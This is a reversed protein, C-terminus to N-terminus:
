EDPKKPKRGWTTPDLLRKLPDGTSKGDPTDKADGGGIKPLRWTKPDFVAKVTDDVARTTLATIDKGAKLFDGPLEAVRNLMRTPGAAITQQFAKEFRVEPESVTGSVPFDVYLLGDTAVLFVNLVEVPVGFVQLLRGSRATHRFQLGRVQVMQDTAIVDDRITCKATILVNGKRVRLDGADGSTLPMESLNVQEFRVDIDANLPQKLAALMTKVALSGQEEGSKLDATITLPQTPAGVPEETSLDDGTVTLNDVVMEYVPEGQSRDVYTIRGGRLRLRKVTVATPEGPEAATPKEEKPPANKQINEALRQLNMKGDAGREILLVPNDVEIHDVVVAGGLLSGVSVDVDIADVSVALVEEAPPNAPDEPPNVVRLGGVRVHGTFLNVKLAEIRVPTGLQKTAQGQAVSRGVPGVLVQALVVLGVLVCVIILPIKYRKKMGRKPQKEASREASGMEDATAAAQEAKESM